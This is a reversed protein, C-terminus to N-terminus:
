RFTKVASGQHDMGSSHTNSGKASSDTVSLMISKSIRHKHTWAHPHLFHALVEYHHFFVNISKFIIPQRVVYTVPAISLLLPALQYQLAYRKPFLVDM